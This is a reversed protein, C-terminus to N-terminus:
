LNLVREYEYNLQRQGEQNEMDEAFEPDTQIHLEDLIAALKPLEYKKWHQEDEGAYKMPKNQIATYDALIETAQKVLEHQNM